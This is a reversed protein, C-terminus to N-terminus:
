SICKLIINIGPYQDSVTSQNAEAALIRYFEDNFSCEQYLTVKEVMPSSCVANALERCIALGEFKGNIVLEKQFVM